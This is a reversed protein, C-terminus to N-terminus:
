DSASSEFLILIKAPVLYQTWYRMWGFVWLKTLVALHVAATGGQQVIM